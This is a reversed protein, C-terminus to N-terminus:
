LVGSFDETLKTLTGAPIRFLFNQSRIRPLCLQIVESVQWRICNWGESSVLAELLSFECRRITSSRVFSSTTPLVQGRSEMSVLSM